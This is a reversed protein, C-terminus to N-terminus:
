NLFPIPILLICISVAAIVVMGAFTGDVKTLKMGIWLFVARIVIFVILGFALEM